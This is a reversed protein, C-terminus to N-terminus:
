KLRRQMPSLPKRLSVDLYKGHLYYTGRRESSSQYSVSNPASFNNGGYDSKTTLNYYGKYKSSEAIGKGYVNLGAYMKRADMGLDKRVRNEWEVAGVDGASVVTAQGKSNLVNGSIPNNFHALEHAMKTVGNYEVGGNAADYTGSALNADFALIPNSKSNGYITGEDGEIDAIILTRNSKIADNVLRKGARGSASLKDLYGQVKAKYEDSGIIVIEMGNPDKLIIPNGACYAFPSLSPYKSAMPDVSLWILVDDSNINVTDLIVDDEGLIYVLSSEFDITIAKMESITDTNNIRFLKDMPLKYEIESHYGFISYPNTNQSSVNIISFLLPALFILIRKMKQKKAFNYYKKSNFFFQKVSLRDKLNFLTFIDSITGKM